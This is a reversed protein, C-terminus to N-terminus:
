NTKKKLRESLVQLRNREGQVGYDESKPFFFRESYTKRIKDELELEYLSSERICWVTHRYVRLETLSTLLPIRRTNTLWQLYCDIPVIHKQIVKNFREFKLKLSLFLKKALNMNWTLKVRTEDFLRYFVEWFSGRAM